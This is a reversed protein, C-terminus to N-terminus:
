ALAAEAKAFRREGANERKHAYLRADATRLLIHTHDGDLPAIAAGLSTTIRIQGEPYDFPRAITAAIQELLPMVDHWSQCQDSVVCFEDGGLRALLPAEAAVERLRLAVDTLIRDGVYHGHTDNARKFGNLDLAIVALPQGDALMMEFAAEFGRRNSLGTLPDTTALWTLERQLALTRRTQRFNALVIGGQLVTVGVAMAAMARVGLNDYLLMKIAIPVMTCTMAIIAARPVSLLCSASILAALGLFVPAVMCYYQETESFANVGWAGAITGLVAAIGTAKRLQRRAEVAAAAPPSFTRWVLVALMTLIIALPPLLQQWLPLDGLVATAMALANAAIAACLLPLAAHLRGAQWIALEDDADQLYKSPADEPQSQIAPNGPGM